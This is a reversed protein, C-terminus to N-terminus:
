KMKQISKALKALMKPLEKEAYQEASTLVDYNMAEVKAAYNMGAVVILVYGKSKGAILDLALDRGEKKGEEGKGNKGRGATEFFEDVIKGNRAIVYGTSSRLNNTDDIYTDLTRAITVCKVGLVGLRMIIDAEIKRADAELKKRIDSMKFNARIGM